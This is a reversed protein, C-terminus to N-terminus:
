SNLIWFTSRYLVLASLSTLEPWGNQNPITQVSIFVFAQFKAYTYRIRHCISEHGNGGLTPRVYRVTDECVIVVPFVSNLTWSEPGGFELKCNHRNDFDIGLRVSTLHSETFSSSSCTSPSSLHSVHQRVKLELIDKCIWLSSYGIHQRSHHGSKLM